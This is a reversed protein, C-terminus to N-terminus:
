KKLLVKLLSKNRNCYIVVAVILTLLIIIFISSNPTIKTPILVYPINQVEIEFINDLNNVTAMDSNSVTVM